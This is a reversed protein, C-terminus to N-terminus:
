RGKAKGQPWLIIQSGAENSLETCGPHSGEVKTEKFSEIKQGQCRERERLSRRHPPM